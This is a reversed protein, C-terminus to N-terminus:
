TLYKDLQSPFHCAHPASAALFLTRKQVVRIAFVVQSALKDVYTHWSSYYPMVSFWNLTGFWQDRICRSDVVVRM